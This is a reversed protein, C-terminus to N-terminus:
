RGRRSLLRVEDAVDVDVGGFDVVKVREAKNVVNDRDVEDVEDIEDFERTSGTSLTARTLRTM